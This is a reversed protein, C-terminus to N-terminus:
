LRCHFAARLVGLAGRIRGGFGAILRTRHYHAHQVQSHVTTTANPSCSGNSCATQPTSRSVTTVQTFDSVRIRGTPPALRPMPLPIVNPVVDAKALMTSENTCCCNCNVCDCKACDCFPSKGAGLEIVDLTDVAGVPAPLAFLAALVLGVALLPPGCRALFRFM